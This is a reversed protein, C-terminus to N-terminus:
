KWLSQGPNMFENDDKTFDMAGEGGLISICGCTLLYEVINTSTVAGKAGAVDKCIIEGKPIGKVRFVMERLDEYDVVNGALCIHGSVTAM